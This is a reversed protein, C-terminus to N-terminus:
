ADSQILRCVADLEIEVSRSAGDSFAQITRLLDRQLNAEDPLQGLQTLLENVQETLRSELAEGLSELADIDESPLELQELIPRIYAVTKTWGTATNSGLPTLLARLRPLREVLQEGDDAALRWTGAIQHEVASLGQLTPVLGDSFRNVLETVEEKAWRQTGARYLAASAVEWSAVFSASINQFAEKAYPEAESWSPGVCSPNSSKRSLRRRLRKFLPRM